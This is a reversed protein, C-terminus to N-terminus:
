RADELVMAAAKEGIMGVTAAINGRTIVPMVSADAVRLRQVGRVRLRPDLVDQESAGMACTGVPHYLGFGNARTYAVIADDGDVAPGPQLEEGTYRALARTRFISRALRVARVITREDRETSFLNCSILPAVHPDPSRLHVTGRGGPQLDEIVMGFASYPDIMRAKNREGQVMTWLSLVLELDPVVLTPDSRVFWGAPIGPASMYGRRTFVYQVGMLNRRWFSGVQDNLTIPETCRYAMRLGFHDQYNAGVGECDRRVAIGLRQLLAGPGIGSLQLLQPSNFTGGCLVVERRVRAHLQRGGQVYDVGAARTGDFTVRQAHALTKVRLNRRRRAPRLYATAPSARRGNKITYQFYGAGDQSAGNFDANAPHGLEVAGAIFADALPHRYAPGSVTLPGGVGHFEDAGRQQDEAKRFWPLVDAYGWGTCGARLWSEYDELNGRCYIMGNISGTGGLVKGRPQYMVRNLLAPEPESEYAWNLRKDNFVKGTGLPVHIWPNRDEGGAELLLVTHQGSESLRHALVCGATGAGVVIYDYHEAQLTV